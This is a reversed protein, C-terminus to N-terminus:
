TQGGWAPGAVERWRERIREFVEESLPGEELVRANERWRGPRNTGVIMTAVGPVGLTFRLATRAPDGEKAFPYALAQWREWYPQHYANDPPGDYRWVANGIPRKAVVGLGRERALPLTREIAEQDVISVSTQLADFAGSGIAVRAAEGDGSYGIYRTHGKEKARLLATIADGKQLEEAGCSHLQVLDVHDTRLRKLSREISALISAPRWDETGFGEPHGCKTFLHFDRRRDAVARGILTESDEYCEATDIVDLGDDLAQRLLRTATAVSARELGIEAGGFGLVSVEMDTRGFWRKEM